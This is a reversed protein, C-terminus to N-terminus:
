LTTIILGMVVMAIGILQTRSIDEGFLFHAAIPVILFGVAMFPYARSLPLVRLALVWLLTSIGYLGVASVLMIQAQLDHFIAGLEGLRRSLGKLLIQGAGLALVCFVVSLYAIVDKSM